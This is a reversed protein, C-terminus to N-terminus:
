KFLKVKEAAPGRQGMTVEFSVLNGEKIEELLNNVHVFISEQTVSDKIFGFGKAENFFTVTGKRVPDVQITESKPISISIDELKVNIKKNIDPPTSTLRGHEDVYAIMDDLSGKKENDKRALRKQEKDKRKKEKKNRVEKKNFSEQSRGM